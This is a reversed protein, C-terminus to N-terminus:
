VVVVMREISNVDSGTSGGGRWEAVGGTGCIEEGKVIGEMEEGFLEGMEEERVIHEGDGM